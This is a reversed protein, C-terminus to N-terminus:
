TLLKDLLGSVPRFWKNIKLPSFFGDNKEVLIEVDAICGIKGCSAWFAGIIDRSLWSFLVDKDHPPFLLSVLNFRWVDAM